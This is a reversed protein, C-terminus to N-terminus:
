FLVPLVVLPAFAFYSAHPVLNCPCPCPCPCCLCPMASISACIRCVANATVLANTPCVTPCRPIRLLALVASPPREGSPGATTAIKIPLTKPAGSSLLPTPTATITRTWSVAGRRQTAARLARSAIRRWVNRTTSLRNARAGRRRKTGGTQVAFTSSRSEQQM